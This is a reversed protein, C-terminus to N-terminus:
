VQSEIFKAASLAAVQGEGVSKSIQYPKGTCDGAAFVGPINTAMERDVKIFKDEIILGPLLEEVPVAERAIFVGEVELVQGSLEVGTVKEEGLIARPRESIVQVNEKLQKPGRYTHIYYVQSCIDALFNAEEEGEATFGIVAVKKDRYFMGDCTACYSVGRGVMEKEKPLAQTTTVGTAILITRGHYINNKDTMLQFGEKLQYINSVKEWTFGVEMKKCHELFKEALDKGTVGIIGLYNDVHPAKELKISMKQSGLILVEKARARATVAASLGAPGAGIVVLDYIKKEM